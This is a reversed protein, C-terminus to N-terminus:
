ILGLKCLIGAALMLVTLLFYFQREARATFWMRGDRIFFCRQRQGTGHTKKEM